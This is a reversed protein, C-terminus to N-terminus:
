SIMPVSLLTEIPVIVLKRDDGCEPNDATWPHFPIGHDTCSQKAQSTLVKFPFAAIILKDISVSTLEYALSKGGGTPLVAVTHCRSLVSDVLTRQELSKFDALPNVLLKRLLRLLDDLPQDPGAQSEAQDGVQHSNLSMSSLRDLTVSEEGLEPIPPTIAPPFTPAELNLGESYEFPVVPIDAAEGPHTSGYHAFVSTPSHESHSATLLQKKAQPQEGSSLIRKTRRSAEDEPATTPLSPNPPIRFPLGKIARTSPPEPAQPPGSASPPQGPAPQPQGSTSYAEVLYDLVETTAAHLERKVFPKLDGMASQHVMAVLEKLLLLITEATGPSGESSGASIASKLHRANRQILPLPILPANLDGLGIADHYSDCWEQVSLLYAATSGEPLGHEVAYRRDATESNHSSILDGINDTGRRVRQEEVYARQFAVLIHRLPHITLGIGIYKLTLKALTTSLQNSTMRKGEKVYLFLDYQQVKSEDQYLQQAVLRELPRIVLLYYCISDTLSQPFYCVNFPDMGKANTDKSHRRIAVIQGFCLYITRPQIGNTIQDRIIEEGRLPPGSGIHVLTIILDVIEAAKRMFDRCATKNWTLSGDEVFSLNWKNHAVMSRMLAHERPETYAAQLWSKGRGTSSLDDVHDTPIIYKVPEGGTLAYMKEKLSEHMSRVGAVLEKIEVQSGNFQVITM